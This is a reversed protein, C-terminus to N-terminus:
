CVFEKGDIYVGALNLDQDLLVFDAKKGVAISGVEGFIGIEKAPNATACMVATELPLGAHKVAFRMCDMLNTASGAITGDHLTALNGKVTVPQGGLTYEGDDLGTARMSDSILIMRQAGFMAFTARIVSPHIHVGDCILEVHCSDSDRVAGIVGPNRHNLPPMANYLHTAHSAGHAIAEMATDYDSATHALSVVVTGKVKDIFEMAGAEEPAIDVLKILGGAADQLQSFYEYDCHMINEAAQAGKKAPSIFPGEMNIGVLHAGGHYAYAGANKMVASLEDKPITMTAPCVSTVGVSAEYQTIVDLAEKTGDCMDAGMCGHFHIDVLGPIMYLGKAEIVEMVEGTHEPQEAISVFRGNEVVVSGKVFRNDQTFINADKIIM